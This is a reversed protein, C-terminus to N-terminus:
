LISPRDESFVQGKAFFGRAVKKCVGHLAFHLGHMLSTHNNHQSSRHGASDGGGGGETM